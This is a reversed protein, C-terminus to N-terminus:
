KRGEQIIERNKQVHVGVYTEIQFEEDLASLVRKSWDYQNQAYLRYMAIMEDKTKRGWDACGTDGSNPLRISTMRESM